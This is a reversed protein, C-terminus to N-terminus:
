KALGARYPDIEWEKTEGDWHVYRATVGDTSPALANGDTEYTMVLELRTGTHLNNRLRGAFLDAIQDDTAFRLAVYEGTGCETCGCDWPDVAILKM